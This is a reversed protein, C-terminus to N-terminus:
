KVVSPYTKPKTTGNPLQSTKEQIQVTYVTRAVSVTGNVGYTEQPRALRFIASVLGWKQWISYGNKGSVPGEGAGVIAAPIEWHFPLSKHSPFTRLVSIACQMGDSSEVVQIEQGKKTKNLLISSLWWCFRLFSIRERVFPQFRLRSAKTFTTGFEETVRVRITSRSVGVPKPVAKEREFEVHRKCKGEWNGVVSFSFEDEVRQFRQVDRKTSKHIQTFNQWNQTNQELQFSLQRM